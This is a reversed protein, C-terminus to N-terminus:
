WSHHVPQNGRPIASADWHDLAWQWIESLTADDLVAPPRQGLFALAHLLTRPRAPPTVAPAGTQKSLKIGHRGTALPLHLYTPRPYGLRQQLYIQRPTSDLLDNGRVVHTIQQLYDDIVVALQYAFLGDARRVIFDGVEQRLNQQQPGLLQDDFCISQADVRLRVSFPRDKPQTKNARCHGPYVTGYKGKPATRKLYNRSCTCYFLAGQALLQEFIQQYTDLQRSQRYIEGDWYLQYAELTRLISQEADAVVRFRDLDDIRLLWDGAAKKADLYSAVAAVLSGFHLPGTPSPAFRGRYRAPM